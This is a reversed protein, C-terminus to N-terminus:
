GTVIQHLIYLSSWFCLAYAPVGQWLFLKKRPNYNPEKQKNDRAKHHGCRERYFAVKLSPHLHEWGINAWPRGKGSLPLGPHSSQRFLALVWTECRTFVHELWFAITCFGSLIVVMLPEDCLFHRSLYRVTPYPKWTHTRTESHCKVWPKLSAGVQQMTQSFLLIEFACRERRGRRSFPNPLGWSSFSSDM